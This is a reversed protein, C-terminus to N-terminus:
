TGNWYYYGSAVDNVSATNYVLLSTAIGAGIPANSTTQTLALRPILLGMNNGPAADIDLLASANPATGTTNIGVRQASINTILFTSNLIFFIASFLLNILKM